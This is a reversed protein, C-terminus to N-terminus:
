QRAMQTWFGENKFADTAIISDDVKILVTMPDLERIIKGFHGKDNIIKLDQSIDKRIESSWEFTYVDKGTVSEKSNLVSTINDPMWDKLFIQRVTVALWQESNQIFFSIVGFRYNPDDPDKSYVRIPYDYIWNGPEKPKNKVGKALNNM